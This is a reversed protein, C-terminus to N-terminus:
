VMKCDIDSVVEKAGSDRGKGGQRSPIQRRNQSSDQDKAADESQLRRSGEEEAEGAQWFRALCIRREKQDRQLRPQLAYRPISGFDKEQDPHSCSTRSSTGTGRNVEGFNAVLSSWPEISINFVAKGFKM